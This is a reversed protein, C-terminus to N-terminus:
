VHVRECDRVGNVFAYPVKVNICHWNYLWGLILSFDLVPPRAHGMIKIDPVLTKAVQWELKNTICLICLYLQVM